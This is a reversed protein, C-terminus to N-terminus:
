LKKWVYMGKGNSLCKLKAIDKFDALKGGTFCQKGEAYAFIDFPDLFLAKSRNYQDRYSKWESTCSNMHEKQEQKTYHYTGSKYEPGAKSIITNGVRKATAIYNGTKYTFTLPKLPKCNHKPAIYYNKYTINWARLQEEVASDISKINGLYVNYLNSMIEKTRDEQHSKDSPCTYNFFHTSCKSLWIGYDKATFVVTPSAYTMVDAYDYKKCDQYNSDGGDWKFIELLLNDINDACPDATKYKKVMQDIIQDNAQAPTFGGSLLLLSVIFAIKNM